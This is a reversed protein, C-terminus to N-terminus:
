LIPIYLLIVTSDRYMCVNAHMGLRYTDISDVHGNCWTGPFLRRFMCHVTEREISTALFVVCYECDCKDSIEKLLLRGTVNGLTNHLFQSCFTVWKYPLVINLHLLTATQYSFAIVPMHSKFGSMLTTAIISMGYGIYRCGETPLSSHLFLGQTGENNQSKLFNFVWIRRLMKGQCITKSMKALKKIGYFVSQLAASVLVCASPFEVGCSQKGTVVACATYCITLQKSM